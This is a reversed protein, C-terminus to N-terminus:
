LKAVEGKWTIGSLSSLEIALERADRVTQLDVKNNLAGKLHGKLQPNVDQPVLCAVIVLSTEQASLIDTYSLLPAYVNQIAYNWLDPNATRLHNVVRLSVKGYIKKWFQYGRNQIHKFEDFTQVRKRKQVIPSELKNTIDNLKSKEEEEEQKSKIPEPSSVIPSPSPSPSPSSPESTESSSEPTDSKSQLGSAIRRRKIDRDNSEDVYVSDDFNLDDNLIKLIRYPTTDRLQSLANIAKPLGTLAASKLITERLKKTIIIQNILDENTLKYDPLNDYPDFNKLNFKKIINNNANSTTTNPINIEGNSQLEKFNNLINLVNNHLDNFNFKNSRKLNLENQLVFHYIKPIEDPKNCVTLTAAAILYWNKQLNNSFNSFKQLNHANLITM